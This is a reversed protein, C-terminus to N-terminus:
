FDITLKDDAWAGIELIYKIIIKFMMWVAFIILMPPNSILYIPKLFAQGLYEVGHAIAVVIALGLTYTAYIGVVAAIFGSLNEGEQCWIIYKTGVLKIIASGIFYYLFLLFPSAIIYRGKIKM